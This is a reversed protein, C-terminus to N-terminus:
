WVEDKASQSGTLERLLADEWKSPPASDGLAFYGYLGVMIPLEKALQPDLPPPAPKLTLPKAATLEAILALAVARLQEATPIKRGDPHSLPSDQPALMLETARDDLLYRDRCFEESHTWFFEREDQPGCCLAVAASLLPVNAAYYPGTSVNEAASAVKQSM